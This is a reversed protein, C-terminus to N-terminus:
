LANSSCYLPLLVRVAWGGSGSVPLHSSPQCLAPGPLETLAVWFGATASLAWARGFDVNLAVQTCAELLVSTPWSLIGWVKVQWSQSWSGRVNSGIEKADWLQDPQPLTCIEETPSAVLGKSQELGRWGLHPLEVVCKYISTQPSSFM